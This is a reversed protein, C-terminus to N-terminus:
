THRYVLVEFWGIARIFNNSPTNELELKHDSIEDHNTRANGSGMWGVKNM